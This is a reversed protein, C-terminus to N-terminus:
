CTAVFYYASECEPHEEGQTDAHKFLARGLKEDVNVCENKNSPCGYSNGIDMIVDRLTRNNDEIFYREVRENLDKEVLSWCLNRESEPTSCSKDKCKPCDKCEIEDDNEDWHDYCNCEYMDCKCMYWGECKNLYFYNTAM